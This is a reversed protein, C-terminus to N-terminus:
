GALLWVSADAALCLLFAALGPGAIRPLVVLALRDWPSAGSAAAADLLVPDIGAFCPTLVLMVIAVSALLPAPIPYSTRTAWGSYGGAEMGLVALALLGCGAVRLARPAAALGAAGLVGAPLAALSMAALPLGRGLVLAPALTMARHLLVVLAPGCLM